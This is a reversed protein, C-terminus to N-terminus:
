LPSGRDPARVRFPDPADLTRRRLRDILERHAWGACLAAPWEHAICWPTGADWVWSLAIPEMHPKGDCEDLVSDLCAKCLQWDTGVPSRAVAVAPVDTGHEADAIYQECMRYHAQSM